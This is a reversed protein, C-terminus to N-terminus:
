VRVADTHIELAFSSDCRTVGAIEEARALSLLPLQGQRRHPRELLARPLRESAAVAGGEGVELQQEAASTGERRNSEVRHRDWHTGLKAPRPGSPDCGDDGEAANRCSNWVASRRLDWRSCGSRSSRGVDM